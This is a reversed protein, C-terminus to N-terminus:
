LQFLLTLLNNAQGKIKQSAFYLKESGRPVDIIDTEDRISRLKEPPLQENILNIKDFPSLGEDLHIRSMFRFAYIVRTVM